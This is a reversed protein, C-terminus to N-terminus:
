QPHRPWPTTSSTYFYTIGLEEFKAKYNEFEEEFVKKFEGDYVKAITDKTSFWLDQKYRHRVPAPRRL